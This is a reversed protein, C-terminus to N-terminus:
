ADVGEPHRSYPLPYTEWARCGSPVTTNGIVQPSDGLLERHLLNGHQQGERGRDNGRGSEGLHGRAGVDIAVLVRDAARGADERGAGLAAVAVVVMGVDVRADVLGGIGLQPAVTQVVVALDAAPLRRAAVGHREVGDATRVDESAELATETAGDRGLAGGFQPQELVDDGALRRAVAGDVVDAALQVGVGTVPEHIRVAVAHQVDNRVRVARREGILVLALLSTGGGGRARGAGTGGLGLGNTAGGRGGGSGNRARHRRHIGGSGLSRGLCHAADVVASRNSRSRGRRVIRLLNRVRSRGLDVGEVRRERAVGLVERREVLGDLILLRGDRVLFSTRLRRFRRDIGLRLAGDIPCGFGLSASIIGNLSDRLELLLTDDDLKSETTGREEAMVGVDGLVALDVLHTAVRRRAAVDTQVQAIGILGTPEVAEEVQKRDRIVTRLAPFRADGILTTRLRGELREASEADMGHEKLVIRAATDDTRIGVRAAATCAEAVDAHSGAAVELNAELSTRGHADLTVTRALTAIGAREGGERGADVEAEAGLLRLSERRQHGERSRWSTRRFPNPSSIKKRLFPRKQEQCFGDKRTSNM